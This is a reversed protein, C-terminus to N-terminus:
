TRSCRRSHSFLGVRSHCDRDCHACKYITAEQTSSRQSYKRHKRKDEATQRLRAEGRILGARLEQRWRDRDCALSEWRGTDMDLSKMDRKCVDKFRLHPRGQARKGSALEGYLLDKPIRGDPM